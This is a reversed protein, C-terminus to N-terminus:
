MVGTRALGRQVEDLSFGNDLATLNLNEITVGGGGLSAGDGGRANLGELFREVNRRNFEVGLAHFEDALQDNIARVAESMGRFSFDEFLAGGGRVFGLVEEVARQAGLTIGMLQREVDRRKDEIGLQFGEMIFQGSERLIRRDVHAPGKWDPLLDTLDGLTDRVNDFGERIGDLLGDIIQRGANVLLRGLNGIADLIRGPLGRVFSVISNIRDVVADRANSFFQRVRAVFEGVRQAGAVIEEIRSTIFNKVFNFITLVLDRFFGLHGGANEFAGVFDGELISALFEVAPVVTILLIEALLKLIPVLAATLVEILPTIAGSVLLDVLMTALNLIPQILALIPVLLTTLLDVLPPLLAGILEGIPELLPLIATVLGLLSPVLPLVADAVTLLLDAVIPLVAALIGGLVDAVQTIVEVLPPFIPQLRTLLDSAFEAVLSILPAIAEAVAGLVNALPPLLTGLLQGIVPLLPALAEVISLFAAGVPEVAPLLAEIGATLATGLVEVLPAAQEVLGALVGGVSALLPGLAEIAPLAAQGIGSLAPLLEAGLAGAVETLQAKFTRMLNPLSEATNQFDGAASSTQEMVLALAAQLQAAESVEGNADALGLEVAKADIAAQNLNVGFQRIPETEGRLASGFAELVTNVDANFVSAVDTARGALGQLSGSLEEGQIGANALLSGIPVVAQNLAAQTIGLSSAADESFNLFSGAADGLVVNVANISEELDAAQTIADGIFQGVQVAAFAAGIAVAAGTLARRMGGGADRAEREIRDFEREGKDGVEDLADEAQEGSREFEREVDGAADRAESGVQDFDGVVEVPDVRIGQLIRNLDRQVQSAFKSVDGVIEM